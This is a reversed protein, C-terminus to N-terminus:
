RGLSQGAKFCNESCLICALLPLKAPTSYVLSYLDWDCRFSNFEMIRKATSDEFFDHEIPSYFTRSPFEIKMQNVPQPFDENYAEKTVSRFIYALVGGRLGVETEHREKRLPRSVKASDTLLTRKSYLFYFPPNEHRLKVAICGLSQVWLCAAEHLTRKRVENFSNWDNWAEKLLSVSKSLNKRSAAFSGQVQNRGDPEQALPPHSHVIEELTM